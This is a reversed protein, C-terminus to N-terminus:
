TSRPATSTLDTSRLTGSASRRALRWAQWVRSLSGRTPTSRGAQIASLRALDEALALTRPYAWGRVPAAPLESLLRAAWDRRLPAAEASALQDRRLGHRAFLALPVRARDPAELGQELRHRLWHVALARAQATADGGAAFLVREVQVLAESLPWLADLAAEADPTPEPEAALLPIADAVSEWTGALAPQAVLPRGVPHRFAGRRWGALEEAWWLSKMGTVRPDSREFLTERLEGILGCWAAYAPRSARPVFALGAALLPERGAAKSFSARLGEDLGETGPVALTM